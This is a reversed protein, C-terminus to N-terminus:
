LSAMDVFSCMSCGAAPSFLPAMELELLEAMVSWSLLRVCCFTNLPM